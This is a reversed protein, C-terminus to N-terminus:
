KTKKNGKKNGKKANEKKGNNKNLINDTSIHQRILIGLKDIGIKQREEMDHWMSSVRRKIFAILEEPKDVGEYEEIGKYVLAQFKNIETSLNSCLDVLSEEIGEDELGTWMKFKNVMIRLNQHTQAKDSQTSVSINVASPITM